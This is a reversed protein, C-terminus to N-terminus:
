EMVRVYESSSFVFGSEPQKVWGHLHITQIENKEPTPEFSSNFNLPIIDQKINSTNHYLEEIVDDVNFTFLRRWLFHPLYKLTSGPRCHSYKEVIESKVQEPKLLGYVRTLSTNRNAGTLKCLDTRLKETSRLYHGFKNQSDLSIGSGFLLNYGGTLLTDRFNLMHEKAIM